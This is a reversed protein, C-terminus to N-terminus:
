VPGWGGLVLMLDLTGVTCDANLDAPCDNCDSCPGWAGLLTLLDITGVMGDGDIDPSNPYTIASAFTDTDGASTDLYVPTVRGGAVSMGYYDGIFQDPRNLGDDDSDWSQASLRHETWTNGSDESVMYYNDFMGHTVGDNQVTNRSDLFVIHIRGAHDIELWTFFQDGPPNEDGNIIVPTTWSSGMDTSKTFYLDVNANGGVFGTNDSYVAYLAGDNPDVDFYLTQLVRFTGPFRSNDVGVGWADMLTVVTITTFSGGGNTSRAIRLKNGFDWYGVYLTGDAAVRPVFGIGGDFSVPNTFTQGMDDSWIVGLNYAIYLRTTDPEGPRPGAAMWCKDAGGTADAMVSPQFFDQGANKRAVFVGGNGAFSIAGIWLAGTRDDFAAMPDGEVTTQNPGPPRVLFDDWTAGGDMSIAAGMRIIESGGSDRWDNWGAIIEMPNAESAAATTENAAFTTGNNDVRVERGIEQATAAGGIMATAIVGLLVRGVNHAAPWILM